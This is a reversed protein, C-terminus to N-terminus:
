NSVERDLNMMGKQRMKSSQGRLKNGYNGCGKVDEWKYLSHTPIPKETDMLSKTVSIDSKAKLKTSKNGYNGYWKVDEWSYLSHTPIPKETDMLSKAVSIDPIRPKRPAYVPGDIGFRSEVPKFSDNTSYVISNHMQPKQTTRNLPFISETTASLDTNNDDVTVINKRKPFVSETLTSTNRTSDECSFISDTTWFTNKLTTENSSPLKFIDEPKKTTSVRPQNGYLSTGDTTTDLLELTSPQTIPSMPLELNFNYSRGSQPKDLIVRQVTKHPGM